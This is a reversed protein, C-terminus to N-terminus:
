RYRNGDSECHIDTYNSVPQYKLTKPVKSEHLPSKSPRPNTSRPSQLGQTRPAPIKFAKPEHLPSKSSRPNTSRPVKFAKPKHLPPSYVKPTSKSWHLIYTPGLDLRFGMERYHMPWRVTQEELSQDFKHISPSGEFSFLIFHDFIDNWFRLEPNFRHLIRSFYLCRCFVRMRVFLM